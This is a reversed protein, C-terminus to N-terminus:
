SNREIGNYPMFSYLPCEPIQCDVKGDEYGCMCDYCKALIAQKSQLTEGNLYNKLHKKGLANKCYILNQSANYKYCKEETKLSNM